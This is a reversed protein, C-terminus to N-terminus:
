QAAGKYTAICGAYSGLQTFATGSNAPGTSTVILELYALSANSNVIGGDFLTFGKVPLAQGTGPAGSGALIGGIWLEKNALTTATTGTDGTTSSNSGNFSTQDFPNPDLGSYECVNAIGAVLTGAGTLGITITSSAGPGVAGRWIECDDNVGQTRSNDKVWTVGTQTVSGVTLVSANASTGIVAILTNGSTPPTSLALQISLGSTVTGRAPGQVRTIPPPPSPHAAECDALSNYEGTPSPVCNTGDWHYKGSPPPSGSVNVQISGTTFPGTARLFLVPAMNATVTFSGNGSNSVVSITLLPTPSWTSGDTSQEIAVPGDIDCGVNLNLTQLPDANIVGSTMSLDTSATAGTQANTVKLTLYGLGVGSLGCGVYVLLMAIPLLLVPALLLYWDIV